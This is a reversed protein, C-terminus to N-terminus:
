AKMQVLLRQQRWAPAAVNFLPTGPVLLTRHLAATARQRQTGSRLLTSCHAVTPPAGAFLRTTSAGFRAGNAQWWAALKTVDPWPLDEDADLAVGDDAADDSPGIPASAPRPGALRAGDLDVGTILCLAEAAIRAHAPDACQNVLWPLYQAQGSWGAGRILTRQARPDRALTQLLAQAPEGALLLAELAADRTDEGSAAAMERLAALARRRDGLLLAARAAPARLPDHADIRSLCAPLLDVRGLRAAADLARLALPARADTLTHADLAPGPDVRHMACAALGLARAQADSSMLLTKTVGRLDPASAWGFASVLGRAADPSTRAIDLLREIAATDASGIAVLAATFVEGGGPQPAAAQALARGADGAVAIGDLHAAIREDHRRLLHLRIHPARVLRTRQRRLAAAEDVHQAVLGLIAPAAIPELVAVVM